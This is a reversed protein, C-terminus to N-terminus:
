GRVLGVVGVISVVMTLLGYPCPDFPRMGARGTHLLMWVGFWVIHEYVFVM